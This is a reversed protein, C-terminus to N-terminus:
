KAEEWQAEKLLFGIVKQLLNEGQEIKINEQQAIKELIFYAKVDREASPKM